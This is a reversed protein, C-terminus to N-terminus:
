LRGTGYERVGYVVANGDNSSGNNNNDTKEHCVRREHNKVWIIVSHSPLTFTIIIVKDTVNIMKQPLLWLVTNLRPLPYLRRRYHTFPSLFIFKKSHPQM